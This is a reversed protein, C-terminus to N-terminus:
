TRKIKEIYGCKPFNSCGIYGTNQYESLPLSCKPCTGLNNKNPKTNQKPEVKTIEVSTEPAQAKPQFIPNQLNRVEEFIIQTNLLLDKMDLHMALPDLNKLQKMLSFFEKDELNARSLKEDIAERIFESANKGKLKKRFTQVFKADAKFSITILDSM